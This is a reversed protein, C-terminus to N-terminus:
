HSVIVKETVRELGARLECFYVGPEVDVLTWNLMHSGEGQVGLNFSRVLRGSPDFVRISAQSAEPLEYLFRVQDRAPNPEVSLTTWLEPEFGAPFEEIAEATAFDVAQLVFKSNFDQVFAAASIDDVSWSPDLTFERTVTLTDGQALTLQEGNVGPIMDRAIFMHHSIGNPWSYTINNEYVVFMLRLDNYMSVDDIVEIFTNVYGARGTIGGQMSMRVPAPSQHRMGYYTNFTHLDGAVSGTTGHMPLYGDFVTHPIGTQGYFSSLRSSAESIYLPGSGGGVPYELIVLSDRDVLAGLSDM